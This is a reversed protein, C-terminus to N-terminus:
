ASKGSLESLLRELVKPEPPKVLHYDFGAEATRRRDEQQGWGTLAALVVKELGPTRRLRRAVEYGDMGPMGIDLFVLDPRFAAALQLASRGDHAVQVEHGYLRLLVALSLAVDANDDVVLLRRGSPPPLPPSASEEQKPSEPVAPLLPLRVVFESGKGPGASHAEVSGGHMEVLNKVLTLGIGLGGHAKTSAHDAQVFLEFVHPLLEPALGIGTDRVRLEVADGARQATLWIRGHRETYKAANALLNGVVQALRVPDAELLLSEDPLHITLEHEQAEILSQVTEVARAVAAALEVREKRLEIKGRMVRSVDLLDDVLHVLHHVQREMMEKARDVTATDLRPMKLIQLSNRIPALPNRLEHALTALFEDKRRDVERLERYLQANEVAIAARHTLDEALALDSRDYNRGSEATGFILVGFTRGSVFLPVCIYSRLGLSRLLQLHDADKAAQTLMEDTINSIIEPQGTRLVHQVGGAAEPDSPYRRSLEHALRVKEPERHAVALRRLTGDDGVVDVASWDAFYPVALKAVKQLTSEYDVLRALAASAEALFRAADTARKQADIDTATGYWRVVAGADDRVPVTRILYWGYSGTRRDRLRLEREFATGTRVSEAWQAAAPPGDDPHLILRWGENGTGEVAGTFEYWRRNSYDVNGDPRATWVIQPMADALQRFRAESALLREDAQRRRQIEKGLDALRQNLAVFQGVASERPLLRLLLLAEHGEERPRLLTGETRCTVGGTVLVLSGLVLARSRSCARLYHAVEDASDTVIETLHKGRLTPLSLGLREEVAGNGALILGSGTLFLMPEPLPDALTLFQDPTM